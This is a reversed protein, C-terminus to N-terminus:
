ANASEKENMLLELEEAVSVRSEHSDISLGLADCNLRLANTYTALMSLIPRVRGHSGVAGVKSLHDTASLVTLLLARQSVLLCQQSASLKGLERKATAIIEDVKASIADVDQRRAKVANLM